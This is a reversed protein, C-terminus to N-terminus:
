RTEECLVSLEGDFAVGSGSDTKTLTIVDGHELDVQNSLAVDISTGAALDGSDGTTTAVSAITTAGHAVALTTYNTDNATLAAGVVRVALVKARRGSELNVTVYKTDDTGAGQNIQAAVVFRRNHIGM